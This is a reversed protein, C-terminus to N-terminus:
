AMRVLAPRVSLPVDNLDMVRVTLGAQMGDLEVAVSPDVKWMAGTLPDIIVMGLLGGVLLNGWYWGDLSSTLTYISSEYGEKEFTITYSAKTFFGAGAELVVSTPTTGSFIVRNNSDIVTVKAGSPDSSLSVPYKSDSVISACGTLAVLSVILLLVLVGHKM